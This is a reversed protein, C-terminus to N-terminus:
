GHNKFLNVFDSPKAMPFTMHFNKLKLAKEMAEAMAIPQEPRVKYGNYGEKVMRDIVPVCVSAVVPRKLYMAELLVNPLGELRSPLVFCDCHLMWKYPNDQEGVFHVCDHLGFEEIMKVIKKYNPLTPTIKGVLYLHTRLNRSHVIKFANILVDHAKHVSFNGVFLYKIMDNQPYPNDDLIKRNIADIDIPNHLCVIHKDDTGVLEILEQQMEEQQAIVRYACKCQKSLLSLFRSKTIYRLMTDNRVISKVGCWKAAQILRVNLGMTSSFVFNANERFIVRAMRLRPFMYINHWTIRIVEYSNPIFKEIQAMRGCVVFKVEFKEIPLMKGINVTMREAGGVSGFLFFLIKIKRNQM